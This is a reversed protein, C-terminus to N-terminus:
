VICFVTCVVCYVTFVLVCIVLCGRMVVCALVVVTCSVCWIFYDCYLWTGENYPWVLIRKVGLVAGYSVESLFLIVECLDHWSDLDHETRVVEYKRLIFKSLFASAMYGWNPTQTCLLVDKLRNMGSTNCVTLFLLDLAVCCSNIRSHIWCCTEAQCATVLNVSFTSTPVCNYPLSPRMNM